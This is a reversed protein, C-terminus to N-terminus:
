DDWGKGYDLVPYLEWLEVMKARGLENMYSYLSSAEWDDARASCKHHVPNAHIYNVTAWYHAANRIRRDSFRHWVKRGPRADERNWQTATGNHLRGIAKAAPGLDVRALLHWHNPLVCWAFVEADVKNAMQCLLKDQFEKQRDAEGMIREHMYNAGSLLYTRACDDFHPPAHLPHKMALRYAIAEKREAKTMKRFSYM